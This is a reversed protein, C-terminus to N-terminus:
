GRWRGALAGSPDALAQFRALRVVDTNKLSVLPMVGTDLMGEVARETLWTEACPKTVSEGGERYIHLPLGEINQIVGPRLDWEYQSFAEALLSVCAFVPNGWLYAEHELKGLSEEFAFREVPETERGYPLRLLFRPVALGLYAAEPLQRLLQWAARVEPAISQQWEDPDPTTALSDCGFVQPNAAAVFPAGAQHAIKALRGLVEVDDPTSSFTYHGAWLAWPQAGPTGVSQEVLLRYLATAGLNETSCLDAVLEERSVDFMYLKLLPSTEVRNVLFFVSRWTAELAQLIPHHLLVRMHQSVVADVQAILEDRRPNAKPTLHPAVIKQLYTHWEGQSPSSPRPPKTPSTPEGIIQSLLDGQSLNALDPNPASPVEETTGTQAPSPGSMAQLEAAAAAFTQTNDLRKRLDLLLRLSEVRQCLQDPLFDDLSTFRLSVQTSSTVDLPVHAEVGFGAMVDEFNDRDVLVPRIRALEASPSILGRNARNSFDGFLAIRFPTDPEVEGRLSEVDAQLTVDIKGFSLPKSM